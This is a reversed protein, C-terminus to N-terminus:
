FGKLIFRAMALGEQSHKPLYYKRHGISGDANSLCCVDVYGGREDDMTASVVEEEDGFDFALYLREIQKGDLNIM